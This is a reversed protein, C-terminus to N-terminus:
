RRGVTQRARYVGDLRVLHGCGCEGIQTVRWASRGLQEFRLGQSADGVSARGDVLRAVGVARGTRDPQPDDRTGQAFGASVEYLAWGDGLSYFTLSKWAGPRSPARFRQAGRLRVLHEEYLDGIRRDYADDVCEATLCRDLREPWDQEGVAYWPVHEAAAIDTAIKIAAKAKARLKPDACVIREAPLTPDRCFAPDPQAHLAAALLLLSLM